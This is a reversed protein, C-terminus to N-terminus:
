EVISVQDVKALNHKTKIKEVLDDIQNPTRCGVWYLRDESQIQVTVPFGLAQNKNKENQALKKLRMEDKKKLHEEVLQDILSEANMNFTFPGHGPIDTSVPPLGKAYAEFISRITPDSISYDTPGGHGRNECTGAKKGDLYLQAHFCNTEESMQAFYKFSKLEVKM